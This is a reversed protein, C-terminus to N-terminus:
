RPNILAFHAQIRQRWIEYAPEGHDCPLNELAADTLRAAERAPIGSLTNSAADTYETPNGARLRAKSAFASGQALCPVFKGARKRLETLGDPDVVGAYTAALGVGSWLDSQRASDFTSITDAILAVNAGKVFWLSRGLGQDFARTEYGQLQRSRYGESCRRWNFFGEHFGWGDFGLWRLIPDLHVQQGRFFWPLRAWAWGLGVHVMYAHANGGSRLLSKVRNASWPTIMDLLALCMAAGEYGFGRLERPLAELRSELVSTSRCEVALNYGEVFRGGAEELRRRAAVTAGCFGRREFNVEEMSLGLIRKRLQLLRTKM